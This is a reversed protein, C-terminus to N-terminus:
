GACLQQRLRAQGMCRMSPALFITMSQTGLRKALLRGTRAPSPSIFGAMCGSSLCAGPNLDLMPSLLVGKSVVCHPRAVQGCLPPM